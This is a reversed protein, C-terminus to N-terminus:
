PVGNECSARLQPNEVGGCQAHDHMAYALNQFCVDRYFSAPSEYAAIPTADTIESCLQPQRKEVAVERLCTFRTSRFEITRCITEDHSRGAFANLCSSRKTIEPLKDCDRPETPALLAQAAAALGLLTVTLVAGAIRIPRLRSAAIFGFAAILVIPISAEIFLIVGLGCLAGPREALFCPLAAIAELISPAFVLVAIGLRVRSQIRPVLVCVAVFLVAFNAALGGLHLYFGFSGTPDALQFVEPVSRVDNLITAIAVVSALLALPVIWFKRM